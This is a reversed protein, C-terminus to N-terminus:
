PQEKLYNIIVEKAEAFSWCATAMFGRSNLYDAWESQAETLKNKKWKMEIFLGHYKANPTPMFLDPVGSRMGEAKMYNALAWSRKGANPTAFIREGKIQIDFWSILAAQENHESM